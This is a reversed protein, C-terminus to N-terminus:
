VQEGFLAEEIDNFEDELEEELIKEADALEKEAKVKDRAAKNVKHTNWAKKGAKVSPKIVEKNLVGLAKGTTVIAIAGVKITGVAITFALKLVIAGVKLLLRVLWRILEKVIEKFKGWGNLEKEDLVDKILEIINDAKGANKDLASKFFPLEEGEKRSKNAFDKVAKMVNGLIEKGNVKLYESLEEDSMNAMKKSEETIIDAAEGVTETVFKFGNVLGEKSAEAFARAKEGATMEEDTEITAAVEENINKMTKDEMNTNNITENTKITENMMTIEEMEDEEVTPMTEIEEIVVNWIYTYGASTLPTDPMDAGKPLKAEFVIAVRELEEESLNNYDQVGEETAFVNYLAELTKVNNFRNSM